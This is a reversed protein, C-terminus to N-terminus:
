NAEPLCRGENPRARTVRSNDIRRFRKGRFRSPFIAKRTPRVITRTCRSWIRRYGECTVYSNRASLFDRWTHAVTFIKRRASSSRLTTAVPIPSTERYNPLRVYLYTDWAITANAYHGRACVSCGRTVPSQRGRPQCHLTEVYLPSRPERFSETEELGDRPLSLLCYAPLCYFPIRRANWESTRRGVKGRIKVFWERLDRLAFPAGPRLTRSGGCRFCQAVSRGRLAYEEPYTAGFSGGDERLM